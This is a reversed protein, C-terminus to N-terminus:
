APTTQRKWLSQKLMEKPTEWPWPTPTNRPRHSSTPTWRYCYRQCVRCRLARNHWTCTPQAAKQVGQCWRQYARQNTEHGADGLLPKYQLPWQAAMVRERGARVRFKMQRSRWTQRPTQQELSCVFSENFETKMQEIGKGWCRLLWLYMMCLNTEENRAPKMTKSEAVTLM